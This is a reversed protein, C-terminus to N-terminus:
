GINQERERQRQFEIQGNPIQFKAIKESKNTTITGEPKTMIMVGNFTTPDGSLKKRPNRVFM